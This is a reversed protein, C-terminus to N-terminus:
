RYSKPYLAIKHDNDSLMFLYSLRILNCWGAAYLFRTPQGWRMWLEKKGGDRHGFVESELATLIARLRKETGIKKMTKRSVSSPAIIMETSRPRTSCSTPASCSREEVDLLKVAPCDSTISSSPLAVGLTIGLVVWSGQYLLINLERLLCLEFAGPCSFRRSTRLRRM